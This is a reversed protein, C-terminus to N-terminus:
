GRSGHSGHAGTKRGTMLKVKTERVAIAPLTKENKKLYDELAKRHHKAMSRLVWSIARTIIIEKEAKIRDINAFAIGALRPDDSQSLPSCLFVISARRKNINKSKSFATLIKKWEPIHNPIETTCYKGTCVADVEAWGELQDLWRDFLKPDFQKQDSTANDLLIGVMVKETGSKGETMSTLTAAFDKASMDRHQRMWDKAITRLTPANIPYRPHTNGLYSDLFTHQTAVGSKKVIIDLIEKHHSNM